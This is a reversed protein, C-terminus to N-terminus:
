PFINALKHGTTCATTMRLFGCSAKAAYCHGFVNLSQWLKMKNLYKPAPVMSMFHEQCYRTCGQCTSMLLLCFYLIYYQSSAKKQVFYRPLAPPSHEFCLLVVVFTPTVVGPQAGDHFTHNSVSAQAM